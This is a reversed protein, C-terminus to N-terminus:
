QSRHYTIQFDDQWTKDDLSLRARGEMVNDDDEFTMTLRQSFQPADRAVEWGDDTVWLEYVRHVGRLDFYHWQLGDTDGLISLSDPFDPHDNHASFILFLEGELWQVDAGGSVTTGSVERHTAETTWTGVLRRGLRELDASV